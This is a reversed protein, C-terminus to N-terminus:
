FSGRGPGAGMGQGAGQGQGGGGQGQGAGQGQGQGACQGGREMPTDLIANVSEQDLWQATYATGLAEIAGAFARLHNRSGRQLNSFMQTLDQNDIEALASDLDAIDVEEVLAAVRLAEAASAQGQSLLDNYLAQLDPNTFVGREDQVIPDVIAYKDMLLKVSDMHQQEALAVNAFQPLGWLEAFTLYLDRAMKEEERMFVLHSEETTDVEEYPLAALCTTPDCDGL